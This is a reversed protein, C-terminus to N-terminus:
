FSGNDFKLFSAILEFYAWNLKFYVFIWNFDYYYYKASFICLQTQSRVNFVSSIHYKQMWATCKVRPNFYILNLKCLTLILNFNSSISNFDTMIFNFYTSILKSNTLILNFDDLILNLFFAILKFQALNFASM